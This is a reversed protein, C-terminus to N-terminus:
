FICLCGVSTFFCEGSTNQLFPTRLIKAFKVPFYRQQLRKKQYLQLGEVRLNKLFLSWCLHKGTFKAFSKLIFFMQLRSSRSTNSATKLFKAINLPCFYSTILTRHFLHEQHNISSHFHRTKINILM